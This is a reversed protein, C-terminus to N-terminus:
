FDYEKTLGPMVGRMEVCSQSTRTYSLFCLPSVEMLYRRLTSVYIRIRGVPHAVLRVVHKRVDEDLLCLGTATEGDDFHVAFRGNPEIATVVGTFWEQGYRRDIADDLSVERQQNTSARRSRVAAPHPSVLRPPQWM